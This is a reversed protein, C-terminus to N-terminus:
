KNDGKGEDFGTLLERNVGALETRTLRNFEKRMFALDVKIYRKTTSMDKHQLFAQISMINDTEHSMMTAIMNRCSHIGFGNPAVYGNAKFYALKLRNVLSKPTVHFLKGNLGSQSYMRYEDTYLDKLQDVFRTLRTTYIPRWYTPDSSVVIVTQKRMVSVYEQRTLLQHLTQTSWQLIEFTRLGTYVAVLLPANYTTFNSHLYKCLRAFSEVTIAREHIRGVNAFALKSPKITIPRDGFLGRSRLIGIYRMTTNYSYRRFRCLGIFLRLRNDHDPEDLIGSGGILAKLARPTARTVKVREKSPEVLPRRVIKRLRDRPIVDLIANLKKEDLRRLTTTLESTLESIERTDKQSM